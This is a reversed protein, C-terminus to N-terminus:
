DNEDDRPVRFNLKPARRQGLGGRALREADQERRIDEWLDHRAEEGIERLYALCQETTWPDGALFNHLRKAQDWLKPRRADM